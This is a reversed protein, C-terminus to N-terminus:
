ITVASNIRGKGAASLRGISKNALENLSLGNLRHAHRWCTSPWRGTAPCPLPFLSTLITSIPIPAYEPSGDIGPREINM